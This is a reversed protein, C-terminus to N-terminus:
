YHSDVMNLLYLYKEYAIKVSPNETRIRLEREYEDVIHKAYGHTHTFDRYELQKDFYKEMGILTGFDRQSMDIQVSHEYEFNLDFPAHNPSLPDMSVRKPVAYKRHGPQVHARYKKKFHELEDM